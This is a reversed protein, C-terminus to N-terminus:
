AARKVEPTWTDQKGWYGLDHVFFAAWLRIDRPFGYLKTWAAAVFLPHILFCHAGFLVSKTGVPLPKM